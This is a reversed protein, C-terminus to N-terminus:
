PLERYKEKVTIRPTHESLYCNELYSFKHDLQFDVVSEEDDASSVSLPSLSRVGWTYRVVKKSFLSSSKERNRHEECKAVRDVLDSVFDLANVDSFLEEISMNKLDQLCPLDNTNEIPLYHIEKQFETIEDLLVKSTSYPTESGTIASEM